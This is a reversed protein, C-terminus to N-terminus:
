PRGCFNTGLSVTPWTKRGTAVSFRVFDFKRVSKRGGFGNLAAFRISRRGLADPPSPLASGECPLATDPRCAERRCCRRWLSGPWRATSSRWNVCPSHFPPPWSTMPWPLGSAEAAQAARLWVGPLAGVSGVRPEIPLLAPDLGGGISAYRMPLIDYAPAIGAYEVEDGMLVSINEFHRDTNGVLESFAAM